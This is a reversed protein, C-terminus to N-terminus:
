QLTINAEKVVRRWKATEERILKAYDEPSGGVALNGEGTFLREVIEPDVLAKNMASNLKLVVDRPIGAPGLIGWHTSSEVEPLGQEAFTPVDPLGPNRRAGCVALARVRGSKVMERSTEMGTWCIKVDGTLLATQADGASRYAIHKINVGTVLNFLEGGLHPGSGIGGSSYALKGPNAKALEVLEKVSKVPLEPHVILLSPGSSLHIIPTFDKENDFPVKPMLSPNTMFATTASVLTYGDPKANKVLEQGIVGGAGGKNEVIVPQGLFASVKPTLVRLLIDSGGGPTFPCVLRIPKSPFSQQALATGTAGTLLAASLALTSFRFVLKTIRIPRM